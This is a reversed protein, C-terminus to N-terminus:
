QSLIKQSFEYSISSKYNSVSKFYNGTKIEVVPSNRKKIPCNQNIKLGKDFQSKLIYPTDNFAAGKLKQTLKSYTGGFIDHVDRICDYNETTLVNVVLEALSHKGRKRKESQLKKTEDTHKKGLNAKIGAERVHDPCKNGFNPNDKGFRQIGYMPNNEGAAVGKDIRSKSLNKKHEESFIIGKTGQGGSTKNILFGTNRDVRGYLLIFEREKHQMKDYDDSEFLIEVEYETNNTIERWEKSRGTKSFARFYEKYWTKNSDKTGFGVYFPIGTDKRIHRYVFYKNEILTRDLFSTEEKEKSM